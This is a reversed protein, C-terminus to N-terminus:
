LGCYAERHLLCPTHSGMASSKRCIISLLALLMLLLPICSAQWSGM